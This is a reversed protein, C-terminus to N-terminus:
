QIEPVNKKRFLMLRRIQGLIRRESLMYPSGVIMKAFALIATKRGHAKWKTFINAYEIENSMRRMIRKGERPSLGCTKSYLKLMQISERHFGEASNMSKSDPHERFRALRRPIFEPKYGALGIKLFFERDFCYHLSENFGGVQKFIEKTWFSTPQAFTSSFTKSLFYSLSEPWRPDFQRKEKGQGIVVCQGAVLHTKENKSFVPVIQELAEPEYVDDSNIFAFIEGTAKAFGKNLAHSQGKDPESEWYSLWPEYKQIIDITGDNSGGDIIIYEINSYGQLLVSRITEEIFQAQNYSPTVISVRPRASRDRGKLRVRDSGIEWPWGSNTETPSPLENLNKNHM